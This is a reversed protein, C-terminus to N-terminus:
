VDDIVINIQNDQQVNATVNQEIKESYENKFRRSLIAFFQQKGEMYYKFTIDNMIRYKMELYWERMAEMLELTEESFDCNGSYSRNTFLPKCRSDSPRLEKPMYGQIRSMFTAIQQPSIEEGNHRNEMNCNLIALSIGTPSYGNDEYKIEGFGDSELVPKKFNDLLFRFQKARKRMLQIENGGLGM